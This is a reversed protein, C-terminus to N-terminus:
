QQHNNLFASLWGFLYTFIKVIIVGLGKIVAILPAVLALLDNQINHWFDM